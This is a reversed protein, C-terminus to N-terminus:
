WNKKTIGRVLAETICPYRLCLNIRTNDVRSFDQELAFIQITDYLSYYNCFKLKKAETVRVNNIFYTSDSLSILVTNRRGIKIETIQMIFMNKPRRQDQHIKISGEVLFDYLKGAQYKFSGSIPQLRM